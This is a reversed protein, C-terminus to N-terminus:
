GAKGLVPLTVPRIEAVVNARIVLPSSFTSLDLPSTLGSGLV